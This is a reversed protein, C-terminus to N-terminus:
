NSDSHRIDIQGGQQVHKYLDELGAVLASDRTFGHEKEAKRQDIIALRLAMLLNSAQIEM